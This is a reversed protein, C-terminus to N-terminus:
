WKRKKEEANRECLFLFQQAYGAHKGFKRRAFSGIIQYPIEKARCKECEAFQALEKGYRREVAKRVWVDTPFADM